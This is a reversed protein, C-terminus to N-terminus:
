LARCPVHRLGPEGAARGDIKEIFDPAILDDATKPMVFDADGLTFARQCNVVQGGNDRARYLRLSPVSERYSRVVDLTGDTSANDIMTLTLAPWTQALM